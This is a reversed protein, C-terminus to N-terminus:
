RKPGTGDQAERCLRARWRNRPGETKKLDHMAILVTMLADM